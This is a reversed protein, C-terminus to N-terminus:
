TVYRRHCTCSRKACDGLGGSPGGSFRWYPSPLGIHLAYNTHLLNKAGRCESDFWPKHWSPRPKSLGTSDGILFGQIEKSILNYEYLCPDINDATVVKPVKKNMEESSLPSAMKCM